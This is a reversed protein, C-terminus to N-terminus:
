KKMAAETELPAKKFKVKFPVDSLALRRVGNDDYVGVDGCVVNCNSCVTPCFVLKYYDEEEKVKEIKFWNNVTEQGPNGTRGGTTVFRHGAEDDFPALMWVTSQICITMVSSFYVNLDTSVSVVGNNGSAPSFLLPLGSDVELPKQVVTLPCTGNQPPSITLGGGQGRVFPLIYYETGILLSQGDIDLVPPPASTSSSFLPSALLFLLSLLSSLPTM